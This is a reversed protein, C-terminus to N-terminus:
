SRWSSSATAIVEWYKWAAYGLGGVAAWKTTQLGVVIWRFKYVMALLGLTAPPENIKPFPKGKSDEPVDVGLHKCLPEWGDRPHWELLRDKPVVKRVHNYHNHFGVRLLEPDPISSTSTSTHSWVQLPVRLLPIYMRTFSRDLVQLPLWGWWGLMPYFVARMSQVWSDVDRCTLIVKADPYAELLEDTFLVCPIDTVAQHGRTLLHLAVSPFLLCRIQNVYM